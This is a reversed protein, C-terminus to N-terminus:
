PNKIRAKHTPPRGSHLYTKLQLGCESVVCEEGIFDTTESVPPNEDPVNTLGQLLDLALQLALECFNRTGLHIDPEQLLGFGVAFGLLYTARNTGGKFYM